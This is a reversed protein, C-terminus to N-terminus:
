LSGQVLAGRFIVARLTLDANLVALNALKGPDLSGVRDYIGLAKAPNVAAATVADRLPIGFSVACVLGAMLDTVSGAITGDALTARPGRVTVDQGGLTYEGDAPVEVATEADKPLPTGIGHALLYSSGMQLVFQQEVTWDGRDRFRTALALVSNDKSIM